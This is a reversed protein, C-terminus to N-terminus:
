SGQLILSNMGNAVRVASARPDNGRLLFESYSFERHMLRMVRQKATHLQEPLTM